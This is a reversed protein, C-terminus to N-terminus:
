RKRTRQTLSSIEIEMRFTWVGGPVDIAARPIGASARRKLRRRITVPVVSDDNARPQDRVLLQLNVEQVQQPFRL